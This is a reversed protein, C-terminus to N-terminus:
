RLVKAVQFASNPAAKLRPRKMVKRVNKAPVNKKRPDNTTINKTQVIKQSLIPQQFSSLINTKSDANMENGRMCGNLKSVGPFVSQQFSSVPNGKSKTDLKQKKFLDKLKPCEPGSPNRSTTYFSHNPYSPNFSNWTPSRVTREYKIPMARFSVDTSNNNKLPQLNPAYEAAKIIAKKMDESSIVKATEIAATLRVSPPSMFTEAATPHQKILGLMTRAAQETLNAKAAKVANITTKEQKLKAARRERILRQKQEEKARSAEVRSELEMMQQERLKLCKKVQKFQQKQLSARIEDASIKFFGEWNTGQSQVVKGNILAKRVIKRIVPLTFQADVHPYHNIIYKKIAVVSSGKPDALSKLAKLVLTEASFKRYHMSANSSWSTVDSSDCDRGAKPWGSRKIYRLESNLVQNSKIRNRSSNRIKQMSKQVCNKGLM